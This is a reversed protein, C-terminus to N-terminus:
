IDEYNYAGIDRHEISLRIRGVPCYYKDKKRARIGGKKRTRGGGQGYKEDMKRVDIVWGTNKFVGNLYYEMFTSIWERVLRCRNEKPISNFFDGYTTTRNYIEKLEDLINMPPQAIRLFDDFLPKMKEEKLLEKVCSRYEKHVLIDKQYVKFHKEYWTVSNFAISFYYLALPVAYTGRKRHRKKYKEDDTGCEINSKDEFIFENIEPIKVKIYRLLTKIMLITGEGKDLGASLSCEEDHILTVIKASIPNDYNDYSVSVNVCDSYNGGIKFNRSYIKGESTKLSNDIINFKYKGVNIIESTM